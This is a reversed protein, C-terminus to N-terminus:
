DWYSNQIFLSRNFNQPRDFTKAIIALFLFYDLPKVGWELAQGGSM